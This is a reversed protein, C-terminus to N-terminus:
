GAPRSGAPLGVLAAAVRLRNLDALVPDVPALLLSRLAADPEVSMARGAARLPPLLGIAAMGGGIPGFLVLLVRRGSTRDVVGEAVAGPSAAAQVRQRDRELVPFADRM